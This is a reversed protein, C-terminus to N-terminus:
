RPTPIESRSASKRVVTKPHHLLIQLQLMQPLSFISILKSPINQFSQNELTGQANNRKNRSSKQRSTSSSAPPRSIEDSQRSSPRDHNRSDTLEFGPYKSLKHPAVYGPQSMDPAPKTGRRRSQRAPPAPPAESTKQRKQRRAPPSSANQDLEPHEPADQTRRAPAKRKRSASQPETPNSTSSRPPVSPSETGAALRAASRTIRPSM